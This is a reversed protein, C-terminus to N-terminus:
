EREWNPSLMIKQQLPSSMVRPDFDGHAARPTEPIRGTITMEAAKFDIMKMLEVRLHAWARGVKGDRWVGTVFMLYLWYFSFRLPIRHFHKKMFMRRELSNGLLRPKTALDDAKARRIAEMTTYRNQKDLWHHLNLSDHHELLSKLRGVRGDIIPHENVVVASFKCKGTKWFRLVNPKVHLPKGMFWIRWRMWYGDCPNRSECARGMEKVLEPTVREDPDLKMTWPASVPFNEIAFNWQDGFNTFRRQAINVGHELAIDVTRDTSCSDLIFIESAWPKVNEIADKLHYEENLTIMIVAIPLKDM